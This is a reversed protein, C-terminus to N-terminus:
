QPLHGRRQSLYGRAHENGPLVTYLNVVRFKAAPRKRLCNLPPLDGTPGNVRIAAPAGAPPLPIAKHLAKLLGASQHNNLHRIPPSEIRIRLDGDADVYIDKAADHRRLSAVSFYHCEAPFITPLCGRYRAQAMVIRDFHVDGTNWEPFGGLEFWSRRHMLLFNGLSFDPAFDFNDLKLEAGARRSLDTWSVDSMSAVAADFGVRHPPLVAWTAGRRCDVEIANVPTAADALYAPETEFRMAQYIRKEHLERSALLRMLDASLVIDTGAALIFAGRARRIGVNQARREREIAHGAVFESGPVLIIRVDIFDNEPLPSLLSLAAAGAGSPDRDVLIIELPLRAQEAQWATAALFARTQRLWREERQAHGFACVISLYPADFESVRSWRFIGIAM